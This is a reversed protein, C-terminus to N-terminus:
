DVDGVMLDLRESIKFLLALKLGEAQEVTVPMWKDGTWYYLSGTDDHRWTQGVELTGGDNDTEPENDTSQTVIPPETLLAPKTFAAADPRFSM